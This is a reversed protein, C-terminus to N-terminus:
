VLVIRDGLVKRSTALNPLNVFVDAILGVKAGDGLDGPEALEVVVRSYNEACFLRNAPKDLRNCYHYAGTLGRTLHVDILTLNVVRCRLYKLRIAASLAKLKNRM